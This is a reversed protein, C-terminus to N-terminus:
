WPNKPYLFLGQLHKQTLSLPHDPLHGPTPFSARSGHRMGMRIYEVSCGLADHQLVIFHVGGKKKVRNYKPLMASLTGETCPETGLVLSRTHVNGGGPPSRFLFPQQLPAPFFLEAHLITSGHAGQACVGLLSYQNGSMELSGFFGADNLIDTCM